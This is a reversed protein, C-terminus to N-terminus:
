FDGFCARAVRETTKSDGSFESSIVGDRMVLVRDTFEVVEAADSSSVLVAAGGAAFDRIFQYIEERGPGDVGETPEDLIVLESQGFLWRGLLAKQQNGGSLERIDRRIADSPFVSLRGLIGSAAATERRQNVLPSWRLQFRKLTPLTMNERVNLGTLLANHARDEPLFAIGKAFADGVSKPAYKSGNLKVTGGVKRWGFYGVLAKLLTSRGSGVLGTLGVVEGRNLTLTVGRLKPALVLNSCELAIDGHSVRENTVSTQQVSPRSSLQETRRVSPNEVRESSRNQAYKKAIFDSLMEHSAEDKPVIALVQGEAMVVVQDCLRSVERLRHSVYVFSTGEGKLTEIVAVLREVEPASFAATPEDLLIVKPSRLLTRALMTMKENAPSLASGLRDLQEAIGLREAIQEIQSREVNRLRLSGVSKEGNVGHRRPRYGVRINDFVSLTPVIANVQSVLSIGADEAAKVRGGVLNRGDITIQGSDPKVLGAILKVATSKGAGNHGVLGVIEGPGIRLDLRDVVCVGAYDKTLSRVSLRDKSELETM